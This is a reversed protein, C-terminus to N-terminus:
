SKKSDIGTYKPTTKKIKDAIAKDMSEILKKARTIKTENVKNRLELVDEGTFSPRLPQSNGFSLMKDYNSFMEAQAINRTLIANQMCMLSTIM